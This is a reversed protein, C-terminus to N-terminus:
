IDLAGDTAALEIADFRQGFAAAGECCREIARDVFDFAAQYAQDSRKLM